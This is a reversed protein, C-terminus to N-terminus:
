RAALLEIFQKVAVSQLVRILLDQVVEFGRVESFLEFTGEGVSGLHALVFLFKLPPLCLLDFCKTIEVRLFHCSPLPLLLEFIGSHHLVILSFHCLGFVEVQGALEECLLFILLSQRFKVRVFHLLWDGILM